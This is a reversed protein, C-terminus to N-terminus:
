LLDDQSEFSDNSLATERAASGTGSVSAMVLSEQHTQVLEKAISSSDAKVGATGISATNALLLVYSLCALGASLSSGWAFIRKTSKQKRRAQHAAMLKVNLESRWSLSLDEDPLAKVLSAVQLQAVTNLKAEDLLEEKKFLNM